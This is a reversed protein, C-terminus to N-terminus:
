ASTGEEERGEREDGAEEEGGEGAGADRRGKKKRETRKKHPSIPVLEFKVRPTKSSVADRLELCGVDIKREFILPCASVRM